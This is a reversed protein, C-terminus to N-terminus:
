RIHLGSDRHMVNWPRRFRVETLCVMKQAAAGMEELTDGLTGTSPGDMAVLMAGVQGGRSVSLQLCRACREVEIEDEMEDEMEGEMEDEMEDEEDEEDISKRDDGDDTKGLEAQRAKRKKLAPRLVLVLRARKSPNNMDSSSDMSM